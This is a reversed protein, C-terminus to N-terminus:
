NTWIRTRSNKLFGWDRKIEGMIRVFRQDKPRSRKPIHERPLPSAIGWTEDTKTTTQELNVTQIWKRPPKRPAVPWVPLCSRDSRDAQEQVAAVPWVPGTCRDSRDQSNLDTTKGIQKPNAAHNRESTRPRKHQNLKEIAVGFKPWFAQPNPHNQSMPRRNSNRLFKSRRGNLGRQDGAETGWQRQAAAVHVAQNRFSWGQAHWQWHSQRAMRCSRLGLPRIQPIRYLKENRADFNPFFRETYTNPCM